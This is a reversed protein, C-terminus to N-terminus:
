YCHQQQKDPSKFMSNGRGPFGMKRDVQSIGVQGDSRLTAEQPFGERPTVGAPSLLGKESATDHYKDCQIMIALKNDTKGVQSHSGPPGERNQEENAGWHRVCPMGLAPVALSSQSGSDNAGSIALALLLFTPVFGLGEEKWRKQIWAFLVAQTRYRNNIAM